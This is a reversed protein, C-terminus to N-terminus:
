CQTKADPKKTEIIFNDADIISDAKCKPCFLPLGAFGDKAAPAAPDKRWVVPLAGM